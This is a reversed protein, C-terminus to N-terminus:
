IRGLSVSLVWQKSAVALKSKCSAEGALNKAVVLIEGADNLSACKFTLSALLEGKVDEGVILIQDNIIM